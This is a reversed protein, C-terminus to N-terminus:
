GTVIPDVVVAIATDIRAPSIEPTVGVNPLTSKPSPRM